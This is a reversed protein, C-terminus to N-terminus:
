IQEKSRERGEVETQARRIWLIHIENGTKRIGQRACALSYDASTWSIVLCVSSYWFNYYFAIVYLYSTVHDIEAKLCDYVLNEVLCLKLSFFSNPWLVIYHTPFQSLNWFCPSPIHPFVCVTLFTYAIFVTDRFVAEFIM